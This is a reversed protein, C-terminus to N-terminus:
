VCVFVCVLFCNSSSISLASQGKDNRKNCDSTQKWPPASVEEPMVLDKPFRNAFEEKTMSENSAKSEHERTVEVAEDKEGEDKQSSQSISICPDYSRPSEHNESDEDHSVPSIPSAGFCSEDSYDLPCSNTTSFSVSQRPSPSKVLLEELRFSDNNDSRPSIIDEDGKCEM